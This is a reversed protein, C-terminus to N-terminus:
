LLLLRHDGLHGGLYVPSIFDPNGTDTGAPHALNWLLFAVRTRLLGDRRLRSRRYDRYAGYILYIATVAAAGLSSMAVPM